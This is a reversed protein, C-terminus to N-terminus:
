ENGAESITIFETFDGIEKVEPYDDFDWDIDFSVQFMRGDRRVIAKEPFEVDGDIAIVTQWLDAQKEVALALRGRAEQIEEYGNIFDNLLKAKVENTESM